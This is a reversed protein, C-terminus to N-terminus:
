RQLATGRLPCIREITELMDLKAIFCKGLDGRVVTSM